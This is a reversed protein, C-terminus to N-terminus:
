FDKKMFSKKAYFLPIIVWVSLAVFTLIIGINKSFFVKYVAGTYGLLASINFKLTIGIRVLDIPNIFTIGLSTYELPYDKLIYLLLMFLGDYIVTLFFWLMLAIGLGFAKDEIKFAILYALATFIFTLFCGSLIMQLGLMLEHNLENFFIPIGAGICFSLSLALASSLYSGWFLSARNIPQALIVRIFENSSYVHLTCTLLSVLPIIMLILNLLSIFVKSSEPSFWYLTETILLFFLVYSILWKSRLINRLEYKMIIKIM